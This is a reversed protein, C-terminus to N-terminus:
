TELKDFMRIVRPNRASATLLFVLGFLVVCLQLLRISASSMAKSKAWMERHILGTRATRRRDQCLAPLHAM